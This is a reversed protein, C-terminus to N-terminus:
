CIVICAIESVQYIYPKTGTVAALGKRIVFPIEALVDVKEMLGGQGTTAGAKEIVLKASARGKNDRREGAWEYELGFPVAYGTDRDRAPSVHTAKCVDNSMVPFGNGHTQGTVM